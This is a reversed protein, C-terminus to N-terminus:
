GSVHAVYFIIVLKCILLATEEKVERRLGTEFEEHQDVRGYVLEWADKQFEDARKLM